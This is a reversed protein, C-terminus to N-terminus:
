RVPDGVDVVELPEVYPVVLLSARHKLLAILLQDITGGPLHQWLAEALTRGEHEYAAQLRGSKYADDLEQETLETQAVIRLIPVHRDGIPGASFLAIETTRRAAGPEGYNTPM